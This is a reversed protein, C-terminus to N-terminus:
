GKKPTTRVAPTDEGAPIAVAATEVSTSVAAPTILGANLADTVSRSGDPVDGVAGGELTVGDFTLATPTQNIARV